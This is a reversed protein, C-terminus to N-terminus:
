FLCLKLTVVSVCLEVYKNFQTKITDLRGLDICEYINKFAFQEKKKNFDIIHWKVIQQFLIQAIISFVVSVFYMVWCEINNSFNSIRENSEKFGFINRQPTKFKITGFIIICILLFILECTRIKMM